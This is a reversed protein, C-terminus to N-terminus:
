MAKLFELIRVTAAPVPFRKLDRADLWRRTRSGRPRPKVRIKWVDLTVRFKTYAHRVVCLHKAEVVRVGMEESLERRLADLSSEGAEIKGGPFEWLGALLGREPRQQFLFRGDKEIVAVVARVPHIVGSKPRPIRDQRGLAFARCGRSVPCRDCFPDESRCLIAGLEMLAQNFDGCRRQPLVGELFLRIKKDHGGDSFGPLALLRMAVRRVNADVLVHRQDFAISLVAATTYPGFGPLSALTAADRPLEGEWRLAILRAAKHLHRARQYYGLGQWVKLVEAETARAVSQLTPFRKLWREYYPIVTAVTTQQLMMESVWIRYADKTHRWPMDRQHRYFWSLLRSSFLFSAKL